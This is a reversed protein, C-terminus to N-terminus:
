RVGDVTVWGDVFFGGGDGSASTGSITLNSGERLTRLPALILTFAPSVVCAAVLALDIAFRALLKAFSNCCCLADSKCKRLNAAWACTAQMSAAGKRRM